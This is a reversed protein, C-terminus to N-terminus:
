CMVLTLTSASDQLITSSIIKRKMSYMCKSRLHSVSFRHKCPLDVHLPCNEQSVTQVNCMEAEVESSTDTEEEQEARSNRLKESTLHQQKPEINRTWKFLSPVAEKKLRKM